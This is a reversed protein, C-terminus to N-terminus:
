TMPMITVRLSPTSANTASRQGRRFRIKSRASSRQMTQTLRTVSSVSIATSTMWRTRSRLVQSSPLTSFKDIGSLAESLRTRFVVERSEGTLIWRNRAALHWAAKAVVTRSNKISHGEDLVVRHWYTRFLPGGEEARNRLESPNTAEKGTQRIRTPAELAMTMYTTLVIGVRSLVQLPSM